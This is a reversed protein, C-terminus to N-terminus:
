NGSGGIGTTAIYEIATVGRFTQGDIEVERPRTTLTAGYSLLNGDTHNVDERETIKADPVVIRKARNGTLAIEFFWTGYDLDKSTHVITLGSETEIVNDDGHLVRFVPANTEIFSLSFMEAYTTRVTLVTDGGWANFTETSIDFSNALGDESAYGLNLAEAPLDAVADTPLDDSEMLPARYIAGAANPKANSVNSANPM